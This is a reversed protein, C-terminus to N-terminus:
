DKRSTVNLLKHAQSGYMKVEVSGDESLSVQATPVLTGESKGDPGFRLEVIGFKYKFTRTNRYAESFLIPRETVLRVIRGDATDESWAHNIPWGTSSPYRLFGKDMGRLVELVGEEGGEKLARLLNAREEETSWEEVTMILSSPMRDGGATPGSMRAIGATFTEEAQAALPLFASAVLVCCTLTTVYARTTM